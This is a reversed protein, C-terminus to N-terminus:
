PRKKWFKWNVKSEPAYFNNSLLHGYAETEKSSELAVKLIATLPIALIMGPIGWFFAGFLLVFIAILPNISVQSGVVKPTIVNGELLQVVQYMILVAIAHWYDDYNLLAYLFPLTGGITTGVYPIITLFAAFFGFFFAHDLGIILLGISNISGIILISLLLGGFYSQTVKQFGKLTKLIQAQKDAEFREVIFHKFSSRYLLFLFLYVIMMGAYGLFLTGSSLTSTILQQASSLAKTGGEKVISEFNEKIWDVSNLAEMTQYFLMFIKDKFDAFDQSLSIFQTTILWFLLGILIAAGLMVTLIALARPLGWREVKACAPFLLFAFLIAFIVPLLLAKGILALYGFLLLCIGFLAANALRSNLKEM